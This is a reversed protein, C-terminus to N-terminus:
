RGQICLQHNFTTRKQTVAWRVVDEYRYGGNLGTSECFRCKSKSDHNYRGEPCYWVSVRKRVLDYAIEVSGDVTRALTNSNDTETVSYEVNVVELYKQENLWKELRDIGFFDPRRWCHVTYCMTMARRGIMSFQCCVADSTVSSISSSIPTPMSSTLVTTKLTVGNGLSYRRSFPVKELGHTLTPSSAVTALKSPPRCAVVLFPPIQNIQPNSSFHRVRGSQVRQAIGFERHASHCPM